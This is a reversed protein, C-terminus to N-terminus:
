TGAADACSPIKHNRREVDFTRMTFLHGLNIERRDHADNDKITRGAQRRYHIEPFLNKKEIRRLQFLDPPVIACGEHGPEEFLDGAGFRGGLARHFVRGRFIQM